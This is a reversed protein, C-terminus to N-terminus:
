KQTGSGDPGVAVTKGRLGGLGKGTVGRKGFLWLPEYFVTGLTELDKGDDETVIGGQILAASVGSKPNHLLALNDPSGKTERVEVKVGIRALEERYRNGFKYYAGGQGGTAIVIKDPPVSRLMIGAAVVIAAITVGITITPWNNRIFDKAAM